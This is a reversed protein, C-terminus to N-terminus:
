KNKFPSLKKNTSKIPIENETKIFAKHKRRKRVYNKERCKNRLAMHQSIKDKFISNYYYLVFLTHLIGYMLGFLTHSFPM